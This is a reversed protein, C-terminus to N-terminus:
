ERYEPFVFEWFIANGGNTVSGKSSTYPLQMHVSNKKVNKFGQSFGTVIFVIFILNKTYKFVQLQFLLFPQIGSAFLKFKQWKEEFTKMLKRVFLVIPESLFVSKLWVYWLVDTVLNGVVESLLKNCNFAVIEEFFLVILWAFLRQKFIETFRDNDQWYKM